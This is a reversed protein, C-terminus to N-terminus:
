TRAPHLQACRSFQAQQLQQTEHETEYAEREARQRGHGVGEPEDEDAEREEVVVHKRVALGLKQGRGSASGPLQRYFANGEIRQNKYPPTAKDRRLRQPPPHGGGTRRPVPRGGRSELGSIMGSM